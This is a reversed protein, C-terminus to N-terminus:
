VRQNMTARTVPSHVHKKTYCSMFIKLVSEIQKYNQSKELAAAWALTM